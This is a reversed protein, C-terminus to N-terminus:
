SPLRSLSKGNLQVLFIYLVTVCVLKLMSMTLTERIRTVNQDDVSLSTGTMTIEMKTACVLQFDHNCRRDLSLLLIVVILEDATVAAGHRSTWRSPEQSGGAVYSLYHYCVLTM